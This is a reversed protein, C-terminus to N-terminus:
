ELGIVEVFSGGLQRVDRGRMGEVAYYGVWNVGYETREPRYTVRILEVGLSNKWFFTGEKQPHETTMEMNTLDIPQANM